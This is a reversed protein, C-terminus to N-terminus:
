KNEMKNLNDIMVSELIKGMVRQLEVNDVTLDPDPSSHLFFDFKLKDEAEDIKISGFSVVSEIFDGEKIRIHWHDNDGPILEYEKNELYMGPIKVM